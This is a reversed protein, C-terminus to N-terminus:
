QKTHEMERCNYTVNGMLKAPCERVYSSCCKSWRGIDPLAGMGESFASLIDLEPYARRSSDLYTIEAGGDTFSDSIIGHECITFARHQTAEAEALIKLAYDFREAVSPFYVFDQIVKRFSRFEPGLHAIM